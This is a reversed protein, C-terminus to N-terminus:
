PQVIEVAQINSMDYPLAVQAEEFLNNPALTINMITGVATGYPVSSAVSFVVDGSAITASKLISEVAPYPGGVLLASYGQNGIRVPLKFNPDFITQVISSQPAVASVTGILDGEFLVADNVAVGQLSGANVTIENKFNLPDSASVLAPLTRATSTPLQRAVNELVALRAALSANEAALRAADPLPEPPPGLLGRLRLAFTPMFFIVILLLLLVTGLFWFRRTRM